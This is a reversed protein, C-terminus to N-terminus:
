GIARTPPPWSAPTTTPCSADQGAGRHHRGRAEPHARRARPRLGEAGRDRRQAAPDSTWVIETANRELKGGEIMANRNRDFDTACDVQGSAVAIENAAHTAGDSYNFYQKPDIGAEQVVGDPHALGLHLRRRRVVRAQGQAGDPWGKVSARSACSSRTTSRSATTSPPRSPACAPTTTPSSTAGRAWGRWTSRSTPSRSPSAPGTPPPWWTSRRPRAAQGPLRLVARLGEEDGRRRSCRARRRLPAQRESRRGHGCSRVRRRGRACAAVTLVRTRM